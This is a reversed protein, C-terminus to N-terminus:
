TRSKECYVRRFKQAHEIERQFNPMEPQAELRARVKKKSEELNAVYGNLAECILGGFRAMYQDTYTSEGKSMEEADSVKALILRIDAKITDNTSANNLMRDLRGKYLALVRRIFPAQVEEFEVQFPSKVM